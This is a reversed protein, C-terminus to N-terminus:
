KSPLLAMDLLRYGTKDLDSDDVIKLKKQKAQKILKDVNIQYMKTFIYFRYLCFFDSVLYETQHKKFMDNIIKEMQDCNHIKKDFGTMFMQDLRKIWTWDDDNSESRYPVALLIVKPMKANKMYFHSMYDLEFEVRRHNLPFVSNLYDLKAEVDQLNKKERRKLKLFLENAVARNTANADPLYATHRYLDLHNFFVNCSRPFIPILRPENFFDFVLECFNDQDGFISDKDIPDFFQARLYDLKRYPHFVMIYEYHKSNYHINCAKKEFCEIAEDVDLLAIPTLKLKRKMHRHILQRNPSSKKCIKQQMICVSLKLTNLQVLCTRNLLLTDDKYEVPLYNHDYHTTYRILDIGIPVLKDTDALILREEREISNLKFLTNEPDVNPEPCEHVKFQPSNLNKDSTQRHFSTVYCTFSSKM